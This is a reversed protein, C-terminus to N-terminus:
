VIFFDSILAKTINKEKQRDLTENHFIKDMTQPQLTKPNTYYTHNM